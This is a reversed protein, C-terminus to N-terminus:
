NTKEIMQQSSSDTQNEDKSKSSKKLFGYTVILLSIALILFFSQDLIREIETSFFPMQSLISVLISLIGIFLGLSFIKMKQKHIGSTKKIGYKRIFNMSAGLFYLMLIGMLATPLLDTRANIGGSPSEEFEIIDTVCIYVAYGVIILVYPVWRQYMKFWASSNVICHISFYLMATGVIAALMSIRLFIQVSWNTKIISYVFIGMAYSAFLLIASAMLRNALYSRNRKLILLASVIGGIIIIAKNVDSFLSM